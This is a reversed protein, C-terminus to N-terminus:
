LEHMEGVLATREPNIEQAWMPTPQGKSNGDEKWLLYIKGDDDKVEYGDISGLEQSVLPGHDTYPGEPTPAGAVAVALRGTSKDRATYYLYVEGRAEDYALEPAWFITRACELLDAVADSVQEWNVLDTSKYIPFLPGWENSTASAWYTDGIKIVTPDPHDGPLVPNVITIAGAEDAPRNNTCGAAITLLVALYLCL